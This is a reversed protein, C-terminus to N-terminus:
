PALRDVLWRNGRRTYLLRDHLRNPRGQWFEVVDPVLMYGGWNEPRPVEGDPYRSAAEKFRAELSERSAIVESQRSAWAGLRSGVPRSQFYADSEAASVREVQGEIRVQRELEHWHLVLAARPNSEIEIAKRSEYNTFFTFGREDCGRLLVIRVSPRGDLTSTALAMAHPEIAGAAMAEEFWTSFQRIPDPDVDSERLKLHDSERPSPHITVAGVGTEREGRVPREDALKPM